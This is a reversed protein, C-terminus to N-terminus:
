RATFHRHLRVFLEGRRPLDVYEADESNSPYIVHWKWHFVHFGLDERFYWLADEDDRSLNRIVPLPAQM